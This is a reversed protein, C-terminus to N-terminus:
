AAEKHNTDIDPAAKSDKQVLDRIQYSRLAPVEEGWQYIAATTIGLAKALNAVGDFSKIAESTKMSEMTLM